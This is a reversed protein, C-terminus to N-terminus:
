RFPGRGTASPGVEGSSVVGEGSERPLQARELVTALRAHQQNLQAVERVLTALEREVADLRREVGEPAGAALREEGRHLLRWGTVIGLPTFVLALLTLTLKNGIIFERLLDDM